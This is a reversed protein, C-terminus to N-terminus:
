LLSLNLMHCLVMWFTGLAPSEVFQAIWGIAWGDECYFHAEQHVSTCWKVCSIYMEQTGTWAWQRTDQWQADSSFFFFFFFLMVWVKEYGGVLNKYANTPDGKLSRKQLSFQELIIAGHCPAPPPPTLNGKYNRRVVFRRHNWELVRLSM